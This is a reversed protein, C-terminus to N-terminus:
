AGLESTVGRYRAMLDQPIPALAFGAQPAWKNRTMCRMCSVHTTRAISILALARRREDVHAEDEIPKPKMQDGKGVFQTGYRQKKGEAVSVRDTLLAYQNGDIEHTRLRPTVIKLIMAQFSPDSDAHTTLLFAAHVGDLGVMASTPFGDQNMIHKLKPLNVADVHIAALRTPDDM